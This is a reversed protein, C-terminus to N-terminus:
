SLKSNIKKYNELTGVLDKGQIIFRVNGSTNDANSSGRDLLDFLRKQQSGNLIMEGSNVRAILSDGAYNSGGVVGGNAFATIAKSAATQAAMAAMMATIQGHLM